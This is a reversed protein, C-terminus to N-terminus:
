LRKGRCIYYNQNVSLMNWDVRKTIRAAVQSKSEEESVVMEYTQKRTEPVLHTQCFITKCFNQVCTSSKQEDSGGQTCLNRDITLRTRTTNQSNQKISM